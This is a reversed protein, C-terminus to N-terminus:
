LQKYHLTIWGSVPSGAVILYYNTIALKFYTPNNTGVQLVYVHGKSIIEHTTSNYNYWTTTPDLPDGFVGSLADQFYGQGIQVNPAHTVTAFDNNEQYMPYVGTNGPGSSGGNTKINWGPVVAFDWDTSTSPDAVSIGHGQAFSFYGTGTSCDLDVETVAGNLSDSGNPQYVFKVTVAGPGAQGVNKLSDILVKAFKGSTTKVVYVNRNPSITHTQINYDYWNGIAYSVADQKWANPSIAPLTSISDFRTSDSNGIKALDAGSVLGPGSAGGNLKGNIRSFSLTWDASTHSQADSLNAVQRTVLSYYKSHVSSTADLRGFYGGAGDSWTSDTPTFNNPQTVTNDTKSCGAMFAVVFIAAFSRLARM